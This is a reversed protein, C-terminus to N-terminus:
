ALAKMVRAQPYTLKIRSNSNHVLHEGQLSLSRSIIPQQGRSPHIRKYSIEVSTWNGRGSSMDKYTGSLVDFECEDLSWSIREPQTNLWGMLIGAIGTDIFQQRIERKREQIVDLDTFPRTDVTARNASSLLENM